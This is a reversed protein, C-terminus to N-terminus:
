GVATTAARQAAPPSLRRRSWRLLQRASPTFRAALYGQTSRRATAARAPALLAGPRAHGGRVAVDGALLLRRDVAARFLISSVGTLFLLPVFVAIHTLSRRWFRRGRSRRQRRHGGADRDKGHYEMHRLRTRAAGIAADVIMGVGLALGGFTMTNLTLRWFYLLAFTGIVSIPISTCVILTSRINRLFLFIIPSSWALGGIM